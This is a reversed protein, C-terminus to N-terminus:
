LSKLNKRLLELISEQTPRESILINNWATASAEKAVAESLCFAITKKVAKHLKFRSILENLIIASRPSFIFIGVIERSRLAQEADKTLRSVAEARYVIKKEIIFGFQKLDKEIAGRTDQGALYLVPGKEPRCSKVLLELLDESNGSASQVNSFGSNGFLKATIDGVCFIPVKESFHLKKVTELTNKSTIIISQFDSKNPVEVPISVIKIVPSIVSTVGFYNLKRALHKSDLDTRTLLVKM